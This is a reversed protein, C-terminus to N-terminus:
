AYQRKRPFLLEKSPEKRLPLQNFRGNKWEMKWEGPRGNRVKLLEVKWTPFGVGPMANELESSLSHIRWRTTCALTHQYKPHHRHLLGTVKSQEVALQLRQSETFSIEQLEGVVAALTNCKLGQEVAWLVDKEKKLDVFIVRDPAVGFRALGQPFISRRNSIWLCFGGKRVLSSLLGSIFGNTSAADAPHLSIFEHVTGLPFSGGPFASEFAGLGLSSAPLKPSASFGELELIKERLQRIVENKNELAKM